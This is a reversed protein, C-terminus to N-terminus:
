RSREAAIILPTLNAGKKLLLAAIDVHGKQAAIFLPTDGDKTALNPDAGHGLLMYACGYSKSGGMSAAIYLPTSGDDTALNPTPTYCAKILEDGKLSDANGDGPM